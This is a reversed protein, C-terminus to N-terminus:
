LLFVAEILVDIVIEILLDTLVITM